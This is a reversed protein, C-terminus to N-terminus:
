KNGPSAFSLVLMLHPEPEPIVKFIKEFQGNTYETVVQEWFDIAAKNEPMQSTEWTGPFQNFIEKAIRHGIGKGQFKSIIFFEGINWDVNATSGAKNVLVFGALENDV